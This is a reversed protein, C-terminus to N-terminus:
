DRNGRERISVPSLMVTAESPAELRARVKQAATM